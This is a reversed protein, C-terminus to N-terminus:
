IEQSRVSCCKGTRRTNMAQTKQTVWACNGPEYNGDNNLRELTYLARGSPLKGPPRPGMDVYFNEFSEWRECVSIGRGGWDRFRRHNPNRCRALMSTWIKFEPSNTM